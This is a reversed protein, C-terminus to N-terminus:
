KTKTRSSIHMWKNHGPPREVPGPKGNKQMGFVTPMKGSPTPYPEHQAAMLPSDRDLPLLHVHLGDPAGHLQLKFLSVEREPLDAFFDIHSRDETEYDFFYGVTVKIDAFREMFQDIVATCSRCPIRDTILSLKGSVSQNPLYDTLTNLLVFESDNLSGNNGRLTPMFSRVTAGAGPPPVITIQGNACHHLLTHDTRQQAIAKRIDPRIKASPAVWETGIIPGADARFSLAGLNGSLGRAAHLLELPLMEARAVYDEGDRYELAVFFTSLLDAPFDDEFEFTNM